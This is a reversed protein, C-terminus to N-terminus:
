CSSDAADVDLVNFILHRAYWAKEDLKRLGEVGPMANYLDHSMMWSDTHIIGDIYHVDEQYLEETAM